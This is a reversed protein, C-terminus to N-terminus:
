FLTVKLLVPTLSGDKGPLPIYIYIYIYIIIKEGALIITKNAPAWQCGVIIFFGVSACGESGSHAHLDSLLCSTGLHSSSVTGWARLRRLTGLCCVTM